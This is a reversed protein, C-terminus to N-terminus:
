PESSDTKKDTDPHNKKYDDYAKHAADSADAAWQKVVPAATDYAEGALEKSRTWGAAACQSFTPEPESKASQTEEPKNQAQHPYQAEGVQESKCGIALLAVVCLYKINM